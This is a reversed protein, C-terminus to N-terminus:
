YRPSPRPVLSGPITNSVDVANQISNTSHAAAHIPASAASISIDNDTRAKKSPCNLIDSLAQCQTDSSRKYSHVGELSRYGTREMVLHEDVGSQYPRTAATARLSHNTKYGSNGAETCMRSITKGPFLASTRSPQLYSTAAPRDPPMLEIYRKFLKVFCREPHDQNAHHIVVKPKM